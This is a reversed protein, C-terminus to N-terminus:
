AQTSATRHYFLLYACRDDTRENDDRWFVEERRVTSVNDDNIRLWDEGSGEHTTNPHLVDVTYLGEGASTVHHYLVGDLTYQAPVAAPRGATPVM